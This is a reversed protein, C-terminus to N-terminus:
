EIDEKESISKEIHSLLIKEQVIVGMGYLSAYIGLMAPKVIVNELVPKFLFKEMKEKPQLYWQNFDHRIDCDNILIVDPNYVCAILNLAVGIYKNMEKFLNVIQEKGEIVGNIFDQITKISSDIKSARKIIFDGALFTQLCGKRGCDCKMGDLEITTHGIEGAMNNYGRLLQGNVIAASGVGRKGIYLYTINSPTDIGYRVVQEGILAAKCDNELFIPLGFVKSAYEIARIDSWHYQPSFKITEKEIGGVCSIGVGGFDEEKIGADRAMEKIAVAACNIIEEYTMDYSTPIERYTIRNLLMDFIAFQTTGGFINICFIYSASAVVELLVAKRGINKDSVSGERVLGSAILLSCIRTMSTASMGIKNALDIRSITKSERIVSYVLYINNYKMYASDNIPKFTNM